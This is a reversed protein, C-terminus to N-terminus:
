CQPGLELQSTVISSAAMASAEMETADEPRQNKPLARFNMRIEVISKREADTLAYSNAASPTVQEMGATTAPITTADAPRWRWYTFITGAAPDPTTLTVGGPWPAYGTEALPPTTLAFKEVTYASTSPDLQARYGDVAGNIDGTAATFVVGLPTAARIPTVDAATANTGITGNCVRAQLLRTSTAVASRARLTAEQRADISSATSWGVDFVQLVGFVVIMGITITMLLEVLSFGEDNHIHVM